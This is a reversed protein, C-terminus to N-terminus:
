RSTPILDFLLMGCTKELGHNLRAVEIGAHGRQLDLVLVVGRPARITIPEHADRRALPDTPMEERQLRDLV